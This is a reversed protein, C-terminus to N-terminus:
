AEGTRETGGWASELVALCSEESFGKAAVARALDRLAEKPLGMGAMTRPLAGADGLAVTLGGLVQLVKEAKERDPTVADVEFGALPFLWSAIHADDNRRYTELGHPMLVGMLQGPLGKCALAAASGLEHIMGLPANSFACGAFGAANALAFRGHRDGANGIVKMLNEM